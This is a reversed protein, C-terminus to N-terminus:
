EASAGGLRERIEILRQEIVGLMWMTVGLGLVSGGGVLTLMAWLPTPLDSDHNLTGVFGVIAIVAGALAVVVSLERLVSSQPRASSAPMMEAFDNRGTMTGCVEVTDGTAPRGRCAEEHFPGRVGGTVDRRVVTDAVCPPQLSGGRESPGLVAVDPSPILSTFESPRRVLQIM